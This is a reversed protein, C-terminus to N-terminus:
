IKAFEERGISLRVGLQGSEGFVPHKRLYIDLNKIEKYNSCAQVILTMVREQTEYHTAKAIQEIESILPDYDFVLGMRDDSIFVLAPDISMTLDLMHYDPLVDDSGYHGLTLPLVLNKLEVTSKM